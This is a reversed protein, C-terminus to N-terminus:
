ILIESNAFTTKFSLFIVIHCQSHFFSHWYNHIIEINRILRFSLIEALFPNCRWCFCPITPHHIKSICIYWGMGYNKFSIIVKVLIILLLTWFKNWICSSIDQSVNHCVMEFVYRYDKKRWVAQDKKTKKNIFVVFWILWWFCMKHKTKKFEYVSHVHHTSIRGWADKKSCSLRKSFDSKSKNLVTVNIHNSVFQFKCSKPYNMKVRNTNFWFKDSWM